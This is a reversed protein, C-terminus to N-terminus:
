KRDAFVAIAAHRLLKKHHHKRTPEKTPHKKTNQQKQGNQFDLAPLLTGLGRARVGSNRRM